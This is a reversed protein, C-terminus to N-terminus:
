FYDSATFRHLVSLVISFLFLVFPCVNISFLLDLLAFGDLFPLTNMYEPLSILEQEVLPVPQAIRSPCSLVICHLFSFSCVAFHLVSCQFSFCFSGWKFGPTFEPTLM